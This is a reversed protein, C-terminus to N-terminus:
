NGAKIYSWGEKQKASLELIAVPVIEALDSIQSKDINFRRLSNACVKFSVTAKSKLEKIKEEFYVKDKVFMNVAKGHCVLELEADPAAKLVNNFQRLVTSHTATDGDNLDFVIKYKESQANLSTAAILLAISLLFKNM